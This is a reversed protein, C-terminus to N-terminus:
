VSKECIMMSQTARLTLPKWYGLKLSFHFMKATNRIRVRPDPAKKVRSGPDSSPKKRIGSRLGM